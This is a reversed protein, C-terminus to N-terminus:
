FRFCTWELVHVDDIMLSQQSNRLLKDIANIGFCSFVASSLVKFVAFCICAYSTLMSSLFAYYLSNPQSFPLSHTRREPSRWGDFGDFWLLSYRSPMVSLRITTASSPLYRATPGNADGRSWGRLCLRVGWHWQDLAVFISNDVTRISIHIPRM